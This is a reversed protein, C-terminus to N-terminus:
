GCTLSIIRGDADLQVNLRSPDNGSPAGKGAPIVVVPGTITVAALTSEPQGILWGMSNAGCSRTATNMPKDTLAVTEMYDGGEPACAALVAMGAVLAVSMFARSKTLNMM